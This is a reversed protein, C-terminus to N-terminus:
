FNWASRQAPPRSTGTPGNAAHRRLGRRRRRRQVPKRWERGGATRAAARRGEAPRWRRYPRHAGAPRGPRLVVAAARRRRFHVLHWLWVAGDGDARRADGAGARDMEAGAPQGYRCAPQRRVAHLGATRGPVCAATPPPSWTAGVVARLEVVDVSRDILIIIISLVLSGAMLGITRPLHVYRHNVIGLIAALLLLASVFEFSSM